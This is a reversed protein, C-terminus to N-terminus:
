RAVCASAWGLRQQPGQSGPGWGWRRGRGRCSCSCEEGAFDFLRQDPGGLLQRVLPDDAREYPMHGQSDMINPRAGAQLLLV